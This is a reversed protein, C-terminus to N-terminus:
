VVVAATAATTPTATAATAGLVSEILHHRHEMDRGLLGNATDIETAPKNGLYSEPSTVIVIPYM